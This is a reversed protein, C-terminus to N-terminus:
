HHDRATEQPWQTYFLRKVAMLLSLSLHKIACQGAAKLSRQCLPRAPTPYRLGSGVQLDGYLFATACLVRIVGFSASPFCSTELDGPFM